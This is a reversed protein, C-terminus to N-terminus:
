GGCSPIRCVATGALITCSISNTLTDRRKDTCPLDLNKDPSHNCEATVPECIGVSTNADPESGRLPVSKGVAMTTLVVVSQSVVFSDAHNWQFLSEM